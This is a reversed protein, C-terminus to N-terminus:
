ASLGKNRRNVGFLSALAGAFLWLGAPVPVPAVSLHGMTLTNNPTEGNATLLGSWTFGVSNSPDPLLQLDGDLMGTTALNDVVNVLQALTNSGLGGNDVLNWTGNVQKLSFDQAMLWDGFVGNLLVAGSLGIQGAASDSYDMTTAQVTRGSVPGITAATANIELQLTSSRGTMPTGGPSLNNLPQLNYAADFFRTPSFLGAFAANWNVNDTTLTAIGAVPTASAGGPLAAAAAM